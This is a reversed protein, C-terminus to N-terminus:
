DILLLADTPAYDDTLTPVDRTPVLRDDRSRIAHALDPVLPREARLERLRDLLFAREAAPRDTAVVIINRLDTQARETGEFVPHVLVTPFVARYTRILSRFLKSAPGRLAGV